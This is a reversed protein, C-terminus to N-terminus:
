KHYVVSGNTISIHNGSVTDTNFSFTAEFNTFGYKNTDAQTVTITGNVSNFTTNSNDVYIASCENPNINFSHKIPYTGAKGYEGPYLKIQIASYPTSSATKSKISVYYSTKSGEFFTASFAAGNVNASMANTLTSSAAPTEDAPKSKKCASLAVIILTFLAFKKM